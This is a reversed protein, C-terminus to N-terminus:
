PTGVRSSTLDLSHVLPDGRLAEAVPGPDLVDAAFHAGPPTRDALVANAALAATLGSVHYPDGIRLTLSRGVGQGARAQFTLM